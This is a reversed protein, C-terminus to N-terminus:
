YRREATKPLVYIFPFRPLATSKKKNIKKKWNKEASRRFIKQSKKKVYQEANCESDNIYRDVNSRKHVIELVLLLDWHPTRRETLRNDHKVWKMARKNRTYIEESQIPNM